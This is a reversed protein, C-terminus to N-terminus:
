KKPTKPPRVAWWVGGSTAGAKLGLGRLMSAVAELDQVELGRLPVFGRRMGKAMSAKIAEITKIAVIDILNMKGEKKKGEV